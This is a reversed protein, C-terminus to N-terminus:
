LILEVKKSGFFHTSGGRAKLCPVLSQQCFKLMPEEEITKTGNCIEKGRPHPTIYFTSMNMFQYTNKVVFVIFSSLYIQLIQLENPLFQSWRHGRDKEVSALVENM